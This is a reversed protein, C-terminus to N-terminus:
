LEIWKIRTFYESLQPEGPHTRFVLWDADGFSRNWERTIIRERNAGSVPYEDEREIIFDGAGDVYGLQVVQLIEGAKEETSM